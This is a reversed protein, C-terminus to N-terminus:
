TIGMLVWLSQTLLQLVLQDLIQLLLEFVHFRLEIFHFIVLMLVGLRQLLNLSSFYLKSMRLLYSLVLLSQNFQLALLDTLHFVLEFTVLFVILLEHM